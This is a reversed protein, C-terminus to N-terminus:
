WSKRGRRRYYMQVCRLRYSGYALFAGGIVIGMVLGTEAVSRILIVIGLLFFLASFAVEMHNRLSGNM